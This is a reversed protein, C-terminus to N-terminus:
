WFLKETDFRIPYKSSSGSRKGSLKPLSLSFVQKSNLNCSARDNTIAVARQPSSQSSCSLCVKPDCDYKGQDPLYLVQLLGSLRKNYTEEPTHSDELPELSFCSTTKEILIIKPSNIAMVLIILTTNWIHFNEFLHCIGCFYFAM